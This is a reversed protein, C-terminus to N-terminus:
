NGQGRIPMTELHVHSAWNFIDPVGDSPPERNPGVNDTLDLTVPVSGYNSTRGMLLHVSDAAGHNMRDAGAANELLWRIQTGDQVSETSNIARCLHWMRKARNKTGAEYGDTGDSGLDVARGVM